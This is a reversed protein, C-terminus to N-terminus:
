KRSGLFMYAGMNLTETTIPVGTVTRANPTIILNSFFTRARRAQSMTKPRTLSPESMQKELVQLMFRYLSPNYQVWVVKVVGLSVRKNKAWGVACSESPNNFNMALGYPNPFSSNGSTVFLMGDESSGACSDCRPIKFRAFEGPRITEQLGIGLLHKHPQHQLSSFLVTKTTLHEM